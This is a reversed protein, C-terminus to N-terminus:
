LEWALQSISVLLLVALEIGRAISFVEVTAHVMSEWIYNKIVFNVCGMLNQRGWQQLGGERFVTSKDVCCIVFMCLKCLSPDGAASAAQWRFNFQFAM